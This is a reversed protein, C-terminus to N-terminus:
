VETTNQADGNELAVGPPGRAGSTAEPRAVDGELWASDDSLGTPLRSLSAAGEANGGPGADLAALSMLRQELTEARTSRRYELGHGFEPDWEGDGPGDFALIREELFESATRSWTKNRPSEPSAPSRPLVAAPPKGVPTAGAPSASALAASAKRRTM